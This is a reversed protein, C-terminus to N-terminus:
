RSVSITKNLEAHPACVIIRGNVNKVIHYGSGNTTAGNPDNVMSVLYTENNTLISLDVLGTCTAGTKCIENTTAFCNNSVPINSPFMGTHDIAYQDVANLITNINISTASAEVSFLDKPKKLSSKKIKMILDFFGEDSKLKRIFNNLISLSSTETANEFVFSTLLRDFKKINMTWINMEPVKKFTPININPHYIKIEKKSPKEGQFRLADLHYKASPKFACFGAELNAKENEIIVIVFGKKHYEEVIREKALTKGHGTQGLILVHGEGGVVLKPTGKVEKIIM